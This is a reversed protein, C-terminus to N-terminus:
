GDTTDEAQETAEQDATKATRMGQTGAPGHAGHARRGVARTREVAAGEAEAAKDVYADCKPNRCPGPGWVPVFAGLTKHRRVITAVPQGCAPCVQEDTGM